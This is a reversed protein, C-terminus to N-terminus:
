DRACGRNTEGDFTWVVTYPYENDSMGDNCTGKTVVLTFSVGDHEGTYTASTASSSREAEMTRPTIDVGQYNLTTGSVHVDWFPETGLATFSTPVSGSGETGTGSRTATSTGTATGTSTQEENDSGAPSTTTETPSETATLTTPSATATQTTTAMGSGSGCATLLAIGVPLACATRLRDRTTTM